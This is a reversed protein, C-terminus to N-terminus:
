ATMVDTVRSSKGSPPAAWKASVILSIWELIVPMQM